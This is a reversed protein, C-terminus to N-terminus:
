FFYGFQHFEEFVRLFELTETSSNRFADEHDARGTSAFGKECLGDGTFGISGKKANAAGIENFHEDADACAADAIHKLLGAFIGGAEDEDVFNIGYTAAAPM